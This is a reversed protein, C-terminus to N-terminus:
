LKHRCLNLFSPVEPKVVLDGTGSSRRSKPAGPGGLVDSAGLVDSGGLADSGGLVDFGDLVDCGGPVDSGGIVDPSDLM